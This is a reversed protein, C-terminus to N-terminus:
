VTIQQKVLSGISKLDQSVLELQDGIEANLLKRGQIYNKTSNVCDLTIVSGVRQYIVSFGRDAYRSRAVAVRHGAALHGAGVVLADLQITM